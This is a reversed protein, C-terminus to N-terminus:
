CCRPVVLAAAGLLSVLFDAAVDVVILINWAFCVSAVTM